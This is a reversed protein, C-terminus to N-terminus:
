RFPRHEHLIAWENQQLTCTLLSEAQFYLHASEAGEKSIQQLFM